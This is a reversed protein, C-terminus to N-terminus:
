LVSEKYFTLLVLEGDVAKFSYLYQAKWWYIGTLKASIKLGDIYTISHIVTQQLYRLKRKDGRCYLKLSM